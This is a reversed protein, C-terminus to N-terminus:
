IKWAPATKALCQQLSELNDTFQRTMLQYGLVETSATPVDPGIALSETPRQL